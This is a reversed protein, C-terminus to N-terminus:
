QRAASPTVAFSDLWAILAHALTVRQGSYVHDTALHIVQLHAADSARAAASIADDEDRFKDDSSVVLVARGQWRPALEALDWDHEHTRLEARLAEADSGTLPGAQEQFHARIEQDWGPRSMALRRNAASIMAVGLVRPDQAAVIGAVQGGVSHGILVLRQPDVGLRAANAPLRLYALAAGADEICHTFSYTGKSGWAGRYHFLLVNFGARRLAQALDQNQEYGPFGHLMLVTAHAAAGAARYYVGYLEVGHSPLTVEAMQAPHATDPAPDAAVPDAAPAQQALARGALLAGLLLLRRTGTRRPQLPRLTRM